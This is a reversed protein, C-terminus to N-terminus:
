THQEHRRRRPELRSPQLVRITYKGTENATYSQNLLHNAQNPSLLVAQLHPNNVQVHLTQGRQLNIHHEDVEFAAIEGSLSFADGSEIPHSCANLLCLAILLPWCRMQSIM